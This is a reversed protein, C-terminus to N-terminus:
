VLTKNAANLAKFVEKTEVKEDDSPLFPLSNYPKNRDYLSVPNSMNNKKDFKILFQCILRKETM